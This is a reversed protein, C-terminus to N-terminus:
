HGFLHKIYKTCFIAMNASNDNPQQWSNRIHNAFVDYGICMVSLVPHM